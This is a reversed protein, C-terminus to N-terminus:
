QGQANNCMKDDPLAWLRRNNWLVHKKLWYKLGQHFQIGLNTKIGTTSVKLVYADHCLPLVIEIWFLNMWPKGVYM